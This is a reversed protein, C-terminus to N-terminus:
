APLDTVARSNSLCCFHLFNHCLFSCLHRPLFLGQFSVRGCLQPCSWFHSQQWLSCLTAPSGCAVPPAPPWSTRAPALSLSLPEMHPCGPFLSGRTGDPLDGEAFISSFLWLRLSSVEPTCLGRRLALLHHGTRWLCRLPPLSCAELAGGEFHFCDPPGV